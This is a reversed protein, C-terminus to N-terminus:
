VCLSVTSREVVRVCVRHRTCYCVCVVRCACVSVCVCICDCERVCLCVLVCVYMCMCTCFRLFVASLSSSLLYLGKKLLHTLKIIKLRWALLMTDNYREGADGVDKGQTGWMKLNKAWPHGLFLAANEGSIRPTCPITGM